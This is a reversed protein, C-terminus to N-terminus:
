RPRVIVREEAPAAAQPGTPDALGPAPLAYDGAVAARVLYALRFGPKQPGVALAALYRNEGTEVHVPRTLTGLWDLGGFAGGEGLIVRELEFGAPLPDTVVVQREEGAAAEGELVVVLRDDTRLGALDAQKGDMDYFRRTIGKSGEQAPFAARGHASLAFHVPVDGANAVPSPSKPDLRFSLPQDRDMTQGDVELRFQGGAAALANGARVLWAREQPGITEPGGLLATVQEASRVLRGREVVGSEAMLALTGARDRLESGWDRLGALDVRGGGAQAFARGAMEAEGLLALTAATQARALDTPLDAFRDEYFYRIDGQDGRGARALVYQAYARAPLEAQDPSGAEVMGALWGLGTEYPQDPIRFGAERARTLVDLVYATLWPEVPGTPSWRAFAGDKRQLTLLRDLRAQTRRNLADADHGALAGALAGLRLMPSVASALGEAGAPADPSGALLLGPLDFDPLAGVSLTLAMGEPAIGDALGEPFHLREGPALVGFSRGVASPSAPRVGIEWERQLSFGNPGEVAMRLRGTGPEGAVLTRHREVQEGAALGPLAIDGDSLSVAGEATLRLTWDAPGAELNRLLLGLDARDGPALQRPVSLAASVPSRVRLSTQGRGTRQPTWALADVRLVGTMDPIDLPVEATGDAGVTVIGSFLATVPRDRGPLGAVQRLALPARTQIGDTGPLAVLRGFGDRVEIGPLRRAPPRELPDPMRHDTLRLVTEEVATVVLRARAGEEMGAVRVSLRAPARAAVEGPGEIDVDLATAAPDAGLWAQGTARRPTARRQGETPAFATAVVHVGGTWGRDVPIELFAGEPGMEQTFVRRVSRDAVAVAVRARYPPRVFVTATEGPAYHPRMAIVKVEDPRETGSPSVWWGATFRVSSAVGSEPDFVELRYRGSGVPVEVPAAAEAAADLSGGSVRRDKVETRYDWRGDAEFWVPEHREEFLDYSLGPRDIRAGDPTVAVVDFGAVTDEPVADDAFRPRIGIAFPRDRVPLVLEASATGGGIDLLTARISAELPLSTGPVEPFRVSMTARGSEDTRFGPLEVTVPAFTEQELGFRYGPHDPFARGAPRITLMAEGPTDSTPRGYFHRGSITIGAAEGPSLSSAGTELRAEIRPPVFDEVLLRARGAPEGEEEVHFAVTWEGPFPAAPLALGAAYGGAGDDEVDRRLVELGDPRLLRFSAKRGASARGDAARLLATLHATEGPRYIGRDAHVFATVPPEAGVRDALDEDPGVLEILNFDGGPDTAFVAQPALAGVGKLVDPGIRALGDEGTTARALESGDRAILRLPLGAAPAADAVRRAFVALGDAGIFAALGIDSVVFWQTAAGAWGEAPSAADRATAVYVGAQLGGLAADIPFPTTASQNPQGGTAMEGQWVVEGKERVLTGIEEETLSQAVRGHYIKEVAERDTLRVVQLKARAVNITRLPLGAAGIRPLVHGAGDFALGPARNPVDIEFVADNGLRVGDAGALGATLTVAYRGGHRMGEVCLTRDRAITATAAGPSLRVHRLHNDGGPRGLPRTFTFCAQPMDREVVVEVSSVGFPAPAEASAPPPPAAASGPPNTTDATAGAAMIGCAAFAALVLGFPRLM